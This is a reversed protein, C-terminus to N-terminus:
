AAEIAVQNTEPLENRGNGFHASRDNLFEATEVPVNAFLHDVADSTFMASWWEGAKSTLTWAARNWEQWPRGEIGRYMKNLEDITYVFEVGETNTVYWKRGRYSMAGGAAEVQERLDGYAINRNFPQFGVDFGSDTNSAEVFGILFRVWHSIKEYDTTGSHQRFEVTGYSTLPVTNVKYYRDRQAYGIGSLSDDASQVTRVISPDLHKAWRSNSGRRSNPMWGDIAQEYAAYRAVVSKVQGPTMGDWALHVHVGCNVNVDLGKVSNLGELVNKLELLGAEGSLIPSVLEGADTQHLSQDTTIKWHRRTNHNYSEASANVGQDRMVEEVQHTTANVFEIEIGYTFNQNLM